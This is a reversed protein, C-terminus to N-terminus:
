KNAMNAGDPKGASATVPTAQGSVVKWGDKGKYLVLTAKMPGVDRGAAKGKANVDVIVVALDPGYSRVQANEYSFSDFKTAGSRMDAIRADRSQDVGQPTVLHYDDAYFKSAADADNKSLAVALDNLIPKVAAEHNTPASSAANSNAAANAPKNAAENATNPQCAIAFLSATFVVAFFILRNM